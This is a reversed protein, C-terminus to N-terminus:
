RRFEKLVDLTPLEFFDGVVARLADAQSRTWGGHMANDVFKKELEATSLPANAGGRLYPQRFEPERGDTLTAKLHGSFNRPYEDNPNVLYRIKATLGLVREDRIRHETFQALGAGHDMFGVAM